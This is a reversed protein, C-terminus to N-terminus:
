LILCITSNVTDPIRQVTITDNMTSITDNMTSITDNMTSNNHWAYQVTVNDSICQVTVTDSINSDTFWVYLCM